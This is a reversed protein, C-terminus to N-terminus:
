YSYFGQGSKKGLLGADTMQILLPCCRFKSDHFSNFLVELSDRVTDLGILDATELPGMKHGYCKKFISDVAQPTGVQEFVLFFAENMMLHSIRNAVFGPSDKVFVGEKGVSELLVTVENICQQSTHFGPIVEVATILSVPNMFHVGIVKGPRKTYSALRTISICSTNSIFIVNEDCIEDMQRYLIQKAKTDEYINEIVFDAHKLHNIETSYEIRGMISDLMKRKDRFEDVTMCRFRSINHIEEAAQELAQSNCDVLLVHYGREAFLQAIGRGMTGAGVVSIRKM